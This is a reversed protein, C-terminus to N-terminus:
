LCSAYVYYKIDHKANFFSVQSAASLEVLYSGYGCTKERRAIMQAVVTAM